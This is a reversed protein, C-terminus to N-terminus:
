SERKILRRTVIHQLFMAVENSPTTFFPCFICCKPFARWGRQSDWPVWCCIKYSRDLCISISWWKRFSQTGGVFNNSNCSKDTKKYIQMSNVTMFNRICICVWKPGRGREAFTIKSHGWLGWLWDPWEKLQLTTLTDLRAGIAFAWIIGNSTM